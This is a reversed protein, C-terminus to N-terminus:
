NLSVKQVPEEMVGIIIINNERIIARKIEHTIQSPVNNISEFKETFKKLSGNTRSKQDGRDTIRSELETLTKVHISSKIQHEQLVQNCKKLEAIIKDQNVKIVNIDGALAGQLVLLEQYSPSMSEM